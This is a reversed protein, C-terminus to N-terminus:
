GHELYAQPHPVHAADGRRMIYPCARIENEGSDRDGGEGEQDGEGEGCDGHERVRVKPEPVRVAAPQRDSRDGRLEVALQHATKRM